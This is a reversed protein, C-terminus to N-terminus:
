KVELLFVNCLSSRIPSLALEPVRGGTAFLLEALLADDSAPRVCGGGGGEGRVHPGLPHLALHVSDVVEGVDVSEAKRANAHVL